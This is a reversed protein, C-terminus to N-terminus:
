EINKLGKLADWRPDAQPARHENLKEVVEGGCAPDEESHVRKFPIMLMIYEYIFDSLDIHADTEPIILIEETEEKREQGFKVILREKGELPYEMDRLCRDCCLLVHGKIDFTFILMREQRELSVKVDLAGKQIDSQEFNEFFAETIEFTYDHMGEKLGVFPIMYEKLVKM